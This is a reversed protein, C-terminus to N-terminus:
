EQLIKEVGLYLINFKESSNIKKNRFINKYGWFEGLVAVIGCSDMLLPITNRDCAKVDWKKFLNKVSVNRGSNEIYAGDFFSRVILPSDAKKEISVTGNDGFHICFHNGINTKHDTLLYYYGSQENITASVILTNKSTHVKVGYAMAYVRDSELKKSLAALFFREPVRFGSVNGNYCHDFMKFLLHLRIRDHASNFEDLSVSCSGSNLSYNIRNTETEIYDEIATFRTEQIALSKVYGPFIEEVLPVLKNRVKNRLYNNEDNTPDRRFNQNNDSLYSLIETKRCHILPRLINKNQHPIGRLGSIGSGQFFRIMITECQDDLNHGLLLYANKFKDSIENFFRYRYARAVEESSRGQEESVTTIEGPNVILSFLEVKLQDTLGKVFDDDDDLQAADRMGHNVYAAVINCESKQRLHCLSLLLATSDPGGSLGVIFTSDSPINYTNLFEFVKDPLNKETSSM